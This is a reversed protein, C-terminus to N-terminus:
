PNPHFYNGTRSLSPLGSQQNGQNKFSENVNPLGQGGGGNGRQGQLNGGNAQKM